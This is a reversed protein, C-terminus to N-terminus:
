TSNIMMKGGDLGMNLLRSRTHGKKEILPVVVSEAM